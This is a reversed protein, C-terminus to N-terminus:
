ALVIPRSTLYQLWSHARFITPNAIDFLRYTSLSTSSQQLAWGLRAQMSGWDHLACAQRTPIAHGPISANEYQAPTFGATIDTVGMPFPLWAFAGTTDVAGAPIGEGCFQEALDDQHSRSVSPVGCELRAFSATKLDHVLLSPSFNNFEKSIQNTCLATLLYQHPM